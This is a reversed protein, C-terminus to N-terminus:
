LFSKILKPVLKVGVIAGFVTIGVPLIATIAKTVETTIVALADATM